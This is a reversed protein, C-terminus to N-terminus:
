FAHKRGGKEDGPLRMYSADWWEVRDILKGTFDYKWDIKSANSLCLNTDEEGDYRKAPDFESADFNYYLQEKVFLGVPENRYFNDEDRLLEIMKGIIKVGEEVAMELSPYVESFFNGQKYLRGYDYRRVDIKLHYVMMFQDEM